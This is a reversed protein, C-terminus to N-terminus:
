PRQRRSGRGGKEIIPSSGAHADIVRRIIGHSRAGRSEGVIGASGGGQNRRRRSRSQPIDRGPKADQGIGGGQNTSHDGGAGGALAHDNAGNPRRQGAKANGARQGIRRELKELAAGEQHTIVVPLVGGLLRFNRGGPQRRAVGRLGGNNPRQRGALGVGGDNSPKVVGGADSQHFNVVQIRSGCRFQ